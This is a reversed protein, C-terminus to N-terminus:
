EAEVNTVTPSTNYVIFGAEGSAVTSDSVTVQGVQVASANFATLILNSGAVQFVLTYEETSSYESITGSVINDVWSGNNFEAVRLQGSGNLLGVYGSFTATLRVGAGFLHNAAISGVTGVVTVTYDQSAHSASNRCIGDVESGISAGTSAVTVTGANVTWAGGTEPAHSTIVTGSAEYLTDSLFGVSPASAVPGAMGPGMWALVPPPGLVCLYIAYFILAASGSVIILFILFRHVKSM